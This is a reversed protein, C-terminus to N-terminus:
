DCDAERRDLVFRGDTTRFSIAQVVMRTRSFARYAPCGGVPEALPVMYHDEGIEIAGEPVAAPDPDPTGPGRTPSCAALWFGLTFLATWYVM